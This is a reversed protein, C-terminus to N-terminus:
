NLVAAALSSIGSFATRAMRRVFNPQRPKPNRKVELSPAKHPCVIVIDGQWDFSVHLRPRRTHPRVLEVGSHKLMDIAAIIHSNSDRRQRAVGPKDHEVIVATPQGFVNAKSRLIWYSSPQAGREAPVDVAAVLEIPSRTSKHWNDYWQVDSASFQQRLHARMLEGEILPRDDLRVRTEYGADVPHSLEPHLIEELEPLAEPQSPGSQLREPGTPNLAM